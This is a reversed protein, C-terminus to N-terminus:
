APCPKGTVAKCIKEQMEVVMTGAENWQAATHFQRGPHVTDNGGPVELDDNFVFGGGYYYYPTVTGAPPVPVAEPETGLSIGFHVITHHNGIVTGAVAGSAGEPPEVQRWRYRYPLELLLHKAEASTLVQPSGDSGSQNASNGCGSSAAVLAVTLFLWALSRRGLGTALIM